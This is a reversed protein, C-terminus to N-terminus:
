QKEWFKNTLDVYTPLKYLRQNTSKSTLGGLSKIYPGVKIYDCVALIQPNITNLEAGTYLCVRLNISKVFNALEIFEHCHQDGGFFVVCSLTYAGTHPSKYKDLLASLVETTLLDGVDKQLYASHCGACCFPCNSISIALSVEGPVEQFSLTYGTYKM